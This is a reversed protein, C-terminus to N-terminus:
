REFVLPLLVSISDTFLDELNTDKVTIILFVRLYKRVCVNETTINCVLFCPIKNFVM